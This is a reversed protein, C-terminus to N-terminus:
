KEAAGAQQFENLIRDLLGKELESKLAQAVQGLRCQSCYLTNKYVWEWEDMTYIVCEACGYRESDIEM